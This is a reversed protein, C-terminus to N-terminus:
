DELSKGLDESHCFLGSDSELIGLLAAMWVWHSHNFIGVGVVAAFTSTWGVVPIFELLGGLIGL